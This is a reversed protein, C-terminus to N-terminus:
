APGTDSPAGGGRPCPYLAPLGAGDPVTGGVKRASVDKLVETVASIRKHLGPPRVVPWATGSGALSMTGIISRKM